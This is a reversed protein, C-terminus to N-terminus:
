NQEWSNQATKQATTRGNRCGSAIKVATSLAKFCAYIRCICNFSPNM